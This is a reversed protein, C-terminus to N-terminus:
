QEHNPTEATQIIRTGLFCEYLLERVPQGSISAMGFTQVGKYPLNTQFHTAFCAPANPHM